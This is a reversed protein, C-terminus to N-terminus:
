WVSRPLTSLFPAPWGCIRLLIIVWRYHLPHWVQDLGPKRPERHPPLAGGRETGRRPRQRCGEDRPLWPSSESILCVYMTVLRLTRCHLGTICGNSTSIGTRCHQVVWLVWGLNRIVKELHSIILLETVQQYATSICRVCGNSTSLGRLCHQM